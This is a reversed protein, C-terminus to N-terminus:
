GLGADEVKRQGLALLYHLATALEPCQGLYGVDVRGDGCDIVWALNHAADFDGREVSDALLRLAAPIDQAAPQEPLKLLQATM